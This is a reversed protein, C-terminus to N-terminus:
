KVEMQKVQKQIYNIVIQRMISQLIHKNNELNLNLIQKLHSLAKM